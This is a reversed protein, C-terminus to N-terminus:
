GVTRDVSECHIYGVVPLVASFQSCKVQMVICYLTKKLIVQLIEKNAKRAAIHLATRGTLDFVDQQAGSQLLLELIDKRRHKVALHVATYGDKSLLNM